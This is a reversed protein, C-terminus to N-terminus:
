YLAKNTDICSEPLLRMINKFLTLNSNYIIRAKEEFDRSKISLDELRHKTDDLELETKSLRQSLDASRSSLEMNENLVERFRSLFKKEEDKKATNLQDEKRFQKIKKLLSSNANQKKLLDKNNERIRSHLHKITSTMELEKLRSTTRYSVLSNGNYQLDLLDELERCKEEKERIEHELNKVTTKYSEVVQELYQIQKESHDRNLFDVLRGSHKLDSVQMESDLILKDELEM